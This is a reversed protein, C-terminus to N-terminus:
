LKQIAYKYFEKTNEFKQFNTPDVASQSFIDNIWESKNEIVKKKESKYGPQHIAAIIAAQAEEQSTFEEMKIEPNLHSHILLSPWNVAWGSFNPYDKIPVKYKLLFEALQFLPQGSNKEIYYHMSPAAHLGIWESKEYWDTVEDIAPGFVIPYEDKYYVNGISMAGRFFINRNIGEIIIKGGLWTTYALSELEGLEEIEMILFLTDSFFMPKIKPLKSTQFRELNRLFQGKINDVEDILECYKKLTVEHEERLWIGRTGLRDLAIVIRKNNL